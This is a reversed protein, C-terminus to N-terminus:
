NRSGLRMNELNKKISAVGDQPRAPTGGFAAHHAQDAISSEGQVCCVTDAHYAQDAISGQLPSPMLM